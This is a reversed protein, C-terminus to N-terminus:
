SFRRVRKFAAAALLAALLGLGVGGLAPVDTPLTLDPQARVLIAKHDAFIPDATLM